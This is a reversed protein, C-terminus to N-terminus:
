LNKPFESFEKGVLQQFPFSVPLHRATLSANSIRIRFSLTVGECNGGKRLM